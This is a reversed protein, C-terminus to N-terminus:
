PTGGRTPETAPAVSRLDAVDPADSFALRPVVVLAAAAGLATVGCIVWVTLYGGLSGATGESGDVLTPAGAALAM